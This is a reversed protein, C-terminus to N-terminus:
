QKLLAADLFAVQLYPKSTVVLTKRVVKYLTVNVYPVHVTINCSYIGGHTSNLPEYSLALSTETGVTETQGVTVSSGNIVPTGDPGVWVLEPTAELDVNLVISCLYTYEYGETPQSSISPEVSATGWEPPVILLFFKTM